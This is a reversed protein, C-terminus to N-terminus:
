NDANQTCSGILVQVISSNLNALHHHHHHHHLRRPYSVKGIVLAGLEDSGDAVVWCDLHCLVACSRWRWKFLQILGCSTIRFMSCWLWLHVYMSRVFVHLTRVVVCLFICGHSIITWLRYLVCICVLSLLFICSICSYSCIM